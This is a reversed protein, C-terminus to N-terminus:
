EEKEYKGRIYPVYGMIVKWDTGFLFAVGLCGGWIAAPGRRNLFLLFVTLFLSYYVDVFLQEVNENM